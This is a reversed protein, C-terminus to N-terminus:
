QIDHCDPTLFFRRVAEPEKEAGLAFMLKTAAAECTMDRSELIPFRESAAHGVTYAAINTGDYPVQTTVLVALGAESWRRIYPLFVKPIGAVGYCDLVVARYKETFGPCCCDEPRIGPFIKVTYIRDDLAYRFSVPEGPRPVAMYPLITGNCLIRAAEPYNTSEFGEFAMSRLKKTRAGLIAKGGFVTYVGPMGSEAAFRLSDILNRKADTVADGIPYQSGTVVVTKDASRIMYQLAAATYALTDTGHTVVFGDYEGYHEQIPRVMKEWM